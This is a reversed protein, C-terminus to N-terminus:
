ASVEELCDDMLVGALHRRYGGSAQLDSLAEAADIRAGLAARLAAADPASAVLPRDALGGIGATIGGPGRQAAAAVIAYDGHRRAIERFAARTGPPAVPVAIAALIEDPALATTLAGLVFGRMPVEREADERRLTLVADLVAMALPLEAAPDAHALSGGITGRNRIQAHGIHRAAAALLPAAAAIRPDELLAKQRTMAGIRLWGSEETIGALEAIRNLDVLVAPAAVRLNLMAVLTQGGAIPRAEEGHERLLRLAEAVSDPRLLRLPSPKM